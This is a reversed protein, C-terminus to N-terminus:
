KEFYKFFKAYTNESYDEKLKKFQEPFENNEIFCLLGM